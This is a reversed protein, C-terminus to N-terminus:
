FRRLSDNNQNELLRQSSCLLVPAACCRSLQASLAALLNQLIVPFHLTSYVCALPCISQCHCTVVMGNLEAHADCSPAWHGVALGPVARWSHDRTGGASEVNGERNGM